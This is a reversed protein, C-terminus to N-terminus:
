KGKPNVPAPPPIYRDIVDAYFRLSFMVMKTYDKFDGSIEMKDTTQFGQCVLKYQERLKKFYAAPDNLETCVNMVFLLIDNHRTANEEATLMFEHFNDEFKAIPAVYFRTLLDEYFLPKNKEVLTLHQLLSEGYFVLDIDKPNDM